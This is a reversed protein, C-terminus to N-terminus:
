EKGLWHQYCELVTEGRYVRPPPAAGTKDPL